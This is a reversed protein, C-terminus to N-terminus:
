GAGHGGSEPVLGSQVGALGFRIAAIVQDIGVGSMVTRTPQLEFLAAHDGTDAVILVRANPIARLLRTPLAIDLPDQSECVMVDPRADALEVDPRQAWDVLDMDPERALADTLIDRLRPRMGILVVRITKMVSSRM